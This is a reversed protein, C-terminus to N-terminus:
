SFSLMMVADVRGREQRRLFELATKNENLVPRKGAAAVSKLKANAITVAQKCADSDGLGFSGSLTTEYSLIGLESVALSFSSRPVCTAPLPHNSSVSKGFYMYQTIICAM